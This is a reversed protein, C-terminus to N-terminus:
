LSCSVISEQTAQNKSLDLSEHQKNQQKILFEFNLTKSSNVDFTFLKMCLGDQGM